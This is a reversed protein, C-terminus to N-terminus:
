KPAIVLVQNEGKGTTYYRIGKEKRLAEKVIRLDEEPLPDFRMERGMEKVRKAVAIAKNILFRKKREKYGGIDLIINVQPNRRKILLNLLYGFQELTRGGRGILLKDYGARPTLNVYYKNGRPIVDIEVTTGLFNFFKKITEEILDLEELKLFIRVKAPRDGLGDNLVIFRLKEKDIGTEEMAKEIAEEVTKAEVDVFRKETM